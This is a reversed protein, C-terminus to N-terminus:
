HPHAEAVDYVALATAFAYDSCHAISVLIRPSGGAGAASDSLSDRLKNTLNVQPPGASGASSEEAGPPAIEIEKWSFPRNWKLQLAKYVAEKAAWRGAFHLAPNTKSRCYGIEAATFCREIFRSGRRAMLDAIRRVAVIDNGISLPRDSGLFKQVTEASLFEATLQKAYKKM